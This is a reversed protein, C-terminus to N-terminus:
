RGSQHLETIEQDEFKIMSRTFTYMEQLNWIIHMILSM